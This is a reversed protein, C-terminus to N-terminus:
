YGGPYSSLWDSHAAALARVEELTPLVLDVGGDYPAFIAGTRKSMWMMRLADSAIDRLLSNFGGASWVVETAHIDYALESEDPDPAQLVKPMSGWQRFADFHADRWAEDGNEVGDWVYLHSIMWCPTAEGLADRALANQRDLIISMEGETAAYRKSEPLSHFRLWLDSRTKLTHNLPIRDPHFRRWAAM